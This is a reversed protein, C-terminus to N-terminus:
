ARAARAPVENREGAEHEEQWRSSVRDRLGRARSGVTSAGSRLATSTRDVVAAGQERGRSTALWALAAGAAAGAVLLATHDSAFAVAPNRRRRRLMRDLKM